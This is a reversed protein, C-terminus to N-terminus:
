RRCHHEDQRQRADAHVQEVQQHQVGVDAVAVAVVVAVLVAVLVAVIVAVTVAVIVVPAARGVPAVMLVALGRRGGLATADTAVAATVVAVAM